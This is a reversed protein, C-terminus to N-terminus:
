SYRVRPDLYGYSIDVILNILIFGATVFLVAAQIVPYDRNRIATVVLQGVGPWAFVTEVIVAGGLLQGLQLGLVTVVPILMNRLAHGVIVRTSRLGKAQATRIYDEHLVDLLGTRILRTLVGVLPLALTITPLILNSVGGEGASPLLRLRRAFILILMLGLWFNPVSQGVLSFVSVLADVPSRPRLAAAIGLPFSILVATLVAALALTGTSGLRTVVAGMATEPLRLSRGLDLRLVQGVYRVYQVPLPEALGLDARLAEVEPKTAQPGAILQAPDGPVIRVVIFIVTLAGWLVFVSYGLRRLIYASM